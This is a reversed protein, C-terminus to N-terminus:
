NPVLGVVVWPLLTGGVLVGSPPRLKSLEVSSCRKSVASTSPEVGERLVCGEPLQISDRYPILNIM